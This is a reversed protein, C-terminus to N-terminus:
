QINLMTYIYWIYGLRDYQIYTYVYTYAYWITYIGYQINVMTYIYVMHLRCCQIHIPMCVMNYLITDYTIREGATLAPQRHQM